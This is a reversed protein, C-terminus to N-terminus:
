AATPKSTPLREELVLYSTQRTINEFFRYDYRPSPYFENDDQLLPETENLKPQHAIGSVKNFDTLM